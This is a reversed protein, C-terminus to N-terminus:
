IKSSRKAAEICKGILDESASRARLAPVHLRLLYMTVKGTNRVNHRLGPPNFALMNSEVQIEDQGTELIGKGSVIYEFEAQDPHSHHGTSAGPPLTVWLVSVDRDMDTIAPHMLMRVESGFETEVGEVDEWKIILSRRNSSM